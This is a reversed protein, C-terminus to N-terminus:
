SFYPKLFEKAKEIKRYASQMRERDRKIHFEIIREELKWVSNDHLKMLNEVAMDLDSGAYKYSLKKIEDDIIDEPTDCLVYVLTAEERQYLDMYGQLQWDYVDDLKGDKHKFFTFADYSCKIDIIKDSNIDCTGTLYENEASETNKTYNGFCYTNYLEIATEEMLIGKKTYKTDIEKKAGTRLEVMMELLYTKAGESLNGAEKDAKLKPDTM